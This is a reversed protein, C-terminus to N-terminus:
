LIRRISPENINLPLSHKTAPSKPSRVLPLLLEIFTKQCEPLKETREHKSKFSSEDETFYM